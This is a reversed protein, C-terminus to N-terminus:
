IITTVICKAWVKPQPEGTKAERESLISRATRLAEEVSVPNFIFLMQKSDVHEGQLACKHAVGNYIDSRTLPYGTQPACTLVCFAAVLTRATMTKSWWQEEYLM